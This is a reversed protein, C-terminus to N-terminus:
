QRLGGQEGPDAWRAEIFSLKSGEPQGMGVWELRIDAATLLNKWEEIGREKSNFLELMALDFARVLWESYRPTLGPAPMAFEAIIIRAGDKLAPILARLIRICYEDSWDHLIWRLFYVDAGKVPQTEFFDHAMFKVRGNLAEPLNQSGEIVVEPMDQVVFRIDKTHRGLMKCSEGHSGGVDVFLQGERAPWDFATLLHDPEYGPERSIISMANAFRQKRVVDDAMHAFIPKETNNAYAFGNHALDQSGPWRVMANVTRSAAPWMEECVLGVWDRLDSLEAFAKSAATHIIRGDPTECFMHKTMVYRIFRTVIAEELGCSKAIDGYSASEGVPFSTAIGFRYIAHLGILNTHELTQRQLHGAPGAILAQLDETAELIKDRCVHLDPPLALVPPQEASFDPNKLGEGKIHDDLKAVNTSIVNVLERLM